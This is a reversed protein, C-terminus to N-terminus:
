DKSIVKKQWTKKGCEPCKMYRTRGMHMSMWIARLEPVYKHHCNGCEYYGAVQEIKISFILGPMAIAVGLLVIILRLYDPMQLYASIVASLLIAAVSFIILITEAALLKKDSEEKQKIIELLLKENNENKNDM